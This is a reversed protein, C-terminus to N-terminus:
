RDLKKQLLDKAKRYKEDLEQTFKNLETEAIAHKLDDVSESEISDDLM